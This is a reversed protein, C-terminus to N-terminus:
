GECIGLDDIIVTNEVMLYGIEDSCYEDGDAADGWLQFEADFSYGRCAETLTKGAAGLGRDWFGAGHGNATLIFDHGAQAPDVDARILIEYNDAVFATVAEAILPEVLDTYEDGGEDVPYGEGGDESVDTASWQLTVAAHRIAVEAYEDINM